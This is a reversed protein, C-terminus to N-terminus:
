AGELQWGVFPTETEIEFCNLMDALAFYLAVTSAIGLMQQPTQGAAAAAYEEDTPHGDRHMADVFALLAKEEGTFRESARWDQLGLIDADALGAARSM